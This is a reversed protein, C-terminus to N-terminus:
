KGTLCLNNQKRTTWISFGNKRILPAFKLWKKEDSKMGFPLTTAIIAFLFTQLITKM